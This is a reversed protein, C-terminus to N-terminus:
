CYLFPRPRSSSTFLYYIFFLLYYILYAARPPTIQFAHRGGSYPAADEVGRVRGTYGTQRNAAREKLDRHAAGCWM